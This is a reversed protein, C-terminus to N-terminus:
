VFPLVCLFNLLAQSMLTWFYWISIRSMLSYILFYLWDLLLSILCSKDNSYWFFFSWVILNILYMYVYIYIYLSFSYELNLFFTRPFTVVDKLRTRYLLTPSCRRSILIVWVTLWTAGCILHHFGSSMRGVSTRDSMRILSKDFRVLKPM